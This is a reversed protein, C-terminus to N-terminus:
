LEIQLANRISASVEKHTLLSIVKFGGYFLHEITISADLGAPAMIKYSYVEESIKDAADADMAWSHEAVLQDFQAIWNSVYKDRSTDDSVFNCFEHQIRFDQTPLNKGYKRFVIAHCIGDMVSYMRSVDVLYARKGPGVNKSNRAIMERFKPSKEFHPAISEIFRERALNGERSMNMVIQTLFYQDDGSKKNNHNICSPVTWLQLNAGKPFLAKPPFHERTKAESSCM